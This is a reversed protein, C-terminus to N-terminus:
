RRRLRDWSSAIMEIALRTASAPRSRRRVRWPRGRVDTVVPDRAGSPASLDADLPELVYEDDLPEPRVAGCPHSPDPQSM